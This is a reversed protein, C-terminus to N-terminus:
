SFVTFLRYFTGFEHGGDCKWLQGTPQIPIKAPWIRTGLGQTECGQRLLEMQVRDMLKKEARFSSSKKDAKWFQLHFHHKLKDSKGPECCTSLKLVGRVNVGRPVCVCVCVHIHVHVSVCMCRM